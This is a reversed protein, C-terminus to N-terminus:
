ESRADTQEKMLIARVALGLPTPTYRSIYGDERSTPNMAWQVLWGNMIGETTNSCMGSLLDDVLGGDNCRTSGRECCRRLADTQLPTLGAAIQEPTM